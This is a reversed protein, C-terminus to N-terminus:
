SGEENRSAPRARRDLQEFFRGIELWVDRGGTLGRWHTRIVGVLAYCDEIPVIWHRRAGLARDVLLSEVDQELTRLVPNAAVLREWADLELQSETPGMPGPYFAMVRGHPTSHFFFALDVPLRLEEWMVDDLELDAVALRRDPVLRYRGEAAERRDFLISCPRCVCKLERTAVELVHRHEAPIPTGCMECQELAAVRESTSRQALRGLRTPASM